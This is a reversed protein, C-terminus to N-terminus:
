KYKNGVKSVQKFEIEMIKSLDIDNGPLFKSIKTFKNIKSSILFRDIYPNYAFNPKYHTFLSYKPV